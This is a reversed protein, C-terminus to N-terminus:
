DLGMSLPPRGGTPWPETVVDRAWNQPATMAARQAARDLVLAAMGGVGKRRAAISKLTEEDRVPTFGNEHAIRPDKPDLKHGPKIETETGKDMTFRVHGTPTLGLVQNGVIDVVEIHDNEENITFLKKATTKYAEELRGAIKSYLVKSTNDKFSVANEQIANKLMERIENKM